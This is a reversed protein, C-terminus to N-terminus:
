AALEKFRAASVKNLPGYYALRASSHASARTWAADSSAYALGCASGNGSAGGFLWLQGSEAYWFYDGYGVGSLSEKPIMYVGQGNESAIINM